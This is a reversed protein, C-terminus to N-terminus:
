IVYIPIQPCQSDVLRDLLSDIHTWSHNHQLHKGETSAQIYLHLISRLKSHPNRNQTFPSIANNNLTPQGAQFVLTSYICTGKGQPDILPNSLIPHTFAKDMVKLSRTRWGVSLVPNRAAEEPSFSGTFMNNSRPFYSSTSCFFRTSYFRFCM